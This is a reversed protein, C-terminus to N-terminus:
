SAPPHQPTEFRSKIDEWTLEEAKMKIFRVRGQEELDGWYSGLEWRAHTKLSAPAPHVIVMTTQPVALWGFIRSNIGRDGFGYGVVALRRSLGLRRYFECHLESFVRSRYYEEIKNATGALFLPRGGVPYQMQDTPTRTHWIDWDSPIGIFLSRGDTFEFWNVSGHLKTLRVKKTSSQLGAFNWYRVNNLSPGFGDEAEIGSGALYQETITDHNLTFIDVEEEDNAADKLFALYSLAAPKKGVILRWTVDRVYNRTEQTLKQLTWPWPPGQTNGRLLHSVLPLLKETLSLLAPNDSVGSESGNIQDALYYIDEYDAERRPFPVYYADIEAKLLKVFAQVRPTDDDPIAPNANPGLYYISDTHRWVDGDLVYRTIDKSMPMGAQRSVGSGLLFSVSM